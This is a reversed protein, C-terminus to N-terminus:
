DLGISQGCPRGSPKHPYPTSAPTLCVWHRRSKYWRHASRDTEVRGGLITMDLHRGHQLYHLDLDIDVHDKADIDVDMADLDIDFNDVAIDM